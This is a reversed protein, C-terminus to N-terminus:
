SPHNLIPAQVILGHPGPHRGRAAVADQRREASREEEVRKGREGKKESKANEPYEELYKINLERSTHSKKDLCKSNEFGEFSRVESLVQNARRPARREERSLKSDMDHYLVILVEM